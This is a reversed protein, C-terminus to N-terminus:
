QDMGTLIIVLRGLIYIYCIYFYSAELIIILTMHRTLLDTM